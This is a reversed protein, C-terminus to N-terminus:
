PRTVRYNDDCYALPDYASGGKCNGHIKLAHDIIPNGTFDTQILALTPFAEYEVDRRTVRSVHPPLTCNDAGECSKKLECVLEAAAMQLEVPPVRGFSLDVVVVDTQGANFTVVDNFILFKDDDLYYDVGDVLPVANLTVSNIQEIPQDINLNIRTKWEGCDYFRGSAQSKCSCSALCGCEICFELVANCLGPFRYCTRAFLINSAAEILQDDTWPYTLPVSVGDCDTTTGGGQCCLDTDAIWPACVQTPDTYSM